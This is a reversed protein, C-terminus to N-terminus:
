GKYIRLIKECYESITDFSINECNRGYQDTLEKNNWLKVTQAKLEDANGSEFLEGTKNNQIM